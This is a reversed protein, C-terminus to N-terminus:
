VVSYKTVFNQKVTKLMNKLKYSPPTKQADYMVSHNQTISVFNIQIRINTHQLHKTAWFQKQRFAIM